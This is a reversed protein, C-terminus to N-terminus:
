KLSVKLSIITLLTIMLLNKDFFTKNRLRDDMLSTVCIQLNELGGEEQLALFLTQSLGEYM